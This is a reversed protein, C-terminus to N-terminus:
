AMLCGNRKLFMGIDLIGISVVICLVVEELCGILSMAHTNRPDALGEFLMSAVVLMTIGTAQVTQSLSSLSIVVFALTRLMTWVRYAMGFVTDKHGSFISRVLFYSLGSKFSRRHYQILLFTSAVPIGVCFLIVGAAGTAVRGDIEDCNLSPFQRLIM